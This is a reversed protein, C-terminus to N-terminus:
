EVPPATYTALYSEGDFIKQVSSSETQLLPAMNTKFFNSNKWAEFSAPGTWQALFILQETNKKPSLLRYGIMTADDNLSATVDKFRQTFVERSASDLSLHFLTFYGRQELVGHSTDVVYKRPLSFLTKGETEHLVVSKGEGHLLIMQENPYKAVLKEMFEATGSTMYFNM